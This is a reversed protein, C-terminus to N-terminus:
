RTANAQKEGKQTTGEVTQPNAGPWRPFQWVGCNEAAKHASPQDAVMRQLEGGGGPRLQLASRVRRAEIHESARGPDRKV